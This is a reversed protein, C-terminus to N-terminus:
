QWVGGRSASSASATRAPCRKSRHPRAGLSREAAEQQQGVINPDADDDNILDGVLADLRAANLVAQRASSAARAENELARTGSRARVPTPAVGRSGCRVRPAFSAGRAVM